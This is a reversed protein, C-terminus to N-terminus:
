RGFVRKNIYATLKQVESEEKVPEIELTKEFIVNKSLKGIETNLTNKDLSMYLDRQAPLLKGATIAKTVITEKENMELKNSLITLKEEMVASDGTLEAIKAELEAVLAEKEALKDEMEKLMNKLATIEDEPTIEPLSGIDDVPMDEPMEALKETNETNEMSEKNFKSAALLQDMSITAPINTLACNILEIIVEKGDQNETLFAPSTYLYEKSLIMNAAKETWEINIAYLGKERLGLDYTGASVSSEPTQTNELQMHNYDFNLKNGYAKWSTMIIYASEPTLYFTGKTTKNEGFKFLLRETPLKNGTIKDLKYQLKM